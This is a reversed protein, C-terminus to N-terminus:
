TNIITVYLKPNLLNLNITWEDNVYLERDTTKKQTTRPLISTGYLM